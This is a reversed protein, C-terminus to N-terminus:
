DLSHVVHHAARHPLWLFLMLACYGGPALNARVYLHRTWNEIPGAPSRNTPQGGGM